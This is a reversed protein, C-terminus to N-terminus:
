WWNDHWLQQPLSSSLHSKEALELNDESEIIRELMLFTAASWDHTKYEGDSLEM